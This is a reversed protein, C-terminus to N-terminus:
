SALMFFEHPSRAAAAAHIFIKFYNKKEERREKCHFDRHHTILFNDGTAPLIFKAVAPQVSTNQATQKERSKKLLSNQQASNTITPLTSIKIKKWFNDEIWRTKYFKFKFRIIRCCYCHLRSWKLGKKFLVM